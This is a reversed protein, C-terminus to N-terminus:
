FYVRFCNDVLKAFLMKFIIYTSRFGPREDQYWCAHCRIEVCNLFDLKGYYSHKFPIDRDRVEPSNRSLGCYLSNGITVSFLPHLLRLLCPASAFLGLAAKVDEPM